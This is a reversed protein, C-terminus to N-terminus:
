FGPGSSRANNATGGSVWSWGNSTFTGDAYQYLYPGETIMVADVWFQTDAVTTAADNVVNLYLAGTTGTKFSASLRTWAGKVSTRSASTISESAKAAGEIFLRVDPGGVPVYVWASVQYTTSASFLSPVAATSSFFRAGATSAAAVPVTTRISATGVYGLTTVRAIVAGGRASWGTGNSQASPNASLNTVTLGGSATRAAASPILAAVSAEDSCKVYATALTAYKTQPNYIRICYQTTNAVVDIINAGSPTFTFNSNSAGKSYWNLASSYQTNNKTAFRAVETEVSEMDALVSKERASSQVGNYSVVTIAVLIGIVMVVIILEVISFGRQYLTAKLM